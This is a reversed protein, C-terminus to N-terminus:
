SGAVCQENMLMDDQFLKWRNINWDSDGMDKDIGSMEVEVIM